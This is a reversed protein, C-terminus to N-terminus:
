LLFEGPLTCALLMLMTQVARECMGSSSHRCASASLKEVWLREYVKHALLSLLKGGRDSYMIKPRGRRWVCVLMASLLEDTKKDRMPIAEVSHSARDVLGRPYKFGGRTSPLM